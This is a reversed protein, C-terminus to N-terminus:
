ASPRRSLPSSRVIARAYNGVPPISPPLEIGLRALVLEPDTAAPSKGGTM